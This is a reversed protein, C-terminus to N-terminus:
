IENHGDFAGDSWYQRRHLVWTVSQVQAPTFLQGYEKSLIKAARVYAAAVAAYRKGKLTPTEGRVGAALAYSHRDITVGSRGATAIGRYFNVIKEGNLTSEIDAGNLIATAKALGVKLYGSTLGGAELIRGALNLNSGWSNLPSVAAIVGAAVAVTVGYKAALAGAIRHADAYWEAGTEIEVPTATRFLRTINRTQPEVYANMLIEKQRKSRISM